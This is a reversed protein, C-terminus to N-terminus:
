LLLAIQISCFLASQGSIQTREGGRILDHETSVSQHVTEIYSEIILVTAIYLISSVACRTFAMVDTYLIVTMWVTRHLSVLSTWTFSACYCM